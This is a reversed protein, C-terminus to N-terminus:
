DKIANKLNILHKEIQEYENKSLIKERDITNKLYDELEKASNSIKEAGFTGASGTMTHALQYLQKLINRQDSSPLMLKKWETEIVAIKEPLSKLYKQRLRTIKEDIEPKDTDAIM